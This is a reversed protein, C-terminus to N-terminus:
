WKRLFAATFIETCETVPFLILETVIDISFHWILECGTKLCLNEAV